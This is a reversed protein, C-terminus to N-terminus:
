NQFGFFGTRSDHCNKKQAGSFVQGATRINKKHFSFVQGATKGALNSVFVIQGAIRGALDPFWFVRDQRGSMKQRTFFVQGATM